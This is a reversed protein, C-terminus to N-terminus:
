YKALASSLDDILDDHHEIGVSLRILNHGIGRKVLEEEPISSHTMIAPHNVLSEVAGLSEALRFFKLNSILGNTDGKFEFSVMGGFAQMQSKAIAHGEHEPLGAYHVKDVKPHENLFQAIRMGNESHAKMRLALTKLGRHATYCDLPSPVAGVSKQVFKFEEFLEESGTTLVGGILDSHGGLYKTTSHLVVDAGFSHPQLLYPSSFTNDVALIANGKREAVGEIDTIKMLPNSPSEIWILRTNENPQINNLDTTDVYTFDIGYKRYIQEFLRYTGGYTDDSSIVHDGPKLITLIASTAAVGSSFALGFKTGELAAMTTEFALRTPNDARSYDYGKHLGPAEQAYTSTIHIPAIVAGTVPDPESGVHIAQTEFRAKM